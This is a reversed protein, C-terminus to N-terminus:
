LWLDTGPYKNKLLAILDKLCRSLDVSVYHPTTKKAAAITDISEQNLWYAILIDTCGKRLELISKKIINIRAIHTQEKERAPQDQESAEPVSTTDAYRSRKERITIFNNLCCRYLYTSIKGLGPQMRGAEIARFVAILGEQYADQADQLNEKTLPLSPVHDYLLKRMFGRHTVYLCEWAANKQAKDKGTLARYYDLDNTFASCNVMITQRYNRNLAILIPM